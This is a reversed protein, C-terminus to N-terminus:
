GRDTEDTERLRELVFADGLISEIEQQEQLTCESVCKVFEKAVMKMAMGLTLADTNYYVSADGNPRSLIAVFDQSETLEGDMRVTCTDPMNIVNSM